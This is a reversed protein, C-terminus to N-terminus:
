FSRYIAFIIFNNKSVFNIFWKIVILSSLFSTVLGILILTINDFNLDKFNILLDYFSAAAITPIALFFSYQTATKRDLNAILGGIITAGSRSTGPIMAFSQFVGILFAQKVSINDLNTIQETKQQKKDFILMFIGGIILALAISFNNFFLSKIQSHLLIGLLAAPLFSAIINISFKQSKKDKFNTVIDLIRDKFIVCIALIAGFQIVIEFLNNKIQNFDILYSTLLLHATSSVPLFETLGEILGLIIAKFIDIM